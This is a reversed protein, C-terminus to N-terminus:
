VPRKQERKKSRLQQVCEAHGLWKRSKIVRIHLSAYLNHFEEEHLKRWCVTVVGSKAGLIRRLLRNECM